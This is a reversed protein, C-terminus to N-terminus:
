QRFIRIVPMTKEVYKIKYEYNSHIFRNLEAYGFYYSPILFQKERYHIVTTIGRLQKGSLEKESNVIVKTVETWKVESKRGFLSCLTIVDENLILKKNLFILLLAISMFLLLFSFILFIINVTKNRIALVSSGAIVILIIISLILIYKNPKVIMM